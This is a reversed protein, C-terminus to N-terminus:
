MFGERVIKSGRFDEHQVFWATRGTCQALQTIIGINGQGAYCVFSIVQIRSQTIHSVGKMLEKM